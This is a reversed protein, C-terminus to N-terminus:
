YAELFMLGKNNSVVSPWQTSLADFDETIVSADLVREHLMGRQSMGCPLCGHFTGYNGYITGRCMEQTLQALKPTDELKPHAIKM